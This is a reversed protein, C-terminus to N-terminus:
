VKGNEEKKLQEELEKQEKNIREKVSNSYKFNFILRGLVISIFVFAISIAKVAAGFFFVFPVCLPILMCASKSICGYLEKQEEESFREGSVTYATDGTTKKTKQENYFFAWFALIAIVVLPVASTYGLNLSDRFAFVSILNLILCIVYYIIM